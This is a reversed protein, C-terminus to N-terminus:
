QLPLTANAAHHKRFVSDLVDLYFDLRKVTSDVRAVAAVAAPVRTWLIHAIMAAVCLQLV